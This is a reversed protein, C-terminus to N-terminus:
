RMIEKLMWYSHEYAVSAGQDMMDAREKWKSWYQEQLTDLQHLVGEIKKQQSQYMMWAGNLYHVYDPTFTIYMEVDYKNSETVFILNDDKGEEILQAIEPIKEFAERNM